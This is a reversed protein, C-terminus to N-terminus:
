DEKEPNLKIKVWFKELSVVEAETKEQLIQGPVDYSAIKRLLTGGKTVTVSIGPFLDGGSESTLASRPVYGIRETRKHSIEKKYNILGWVEVQSGDAALLHTILWTLLFAIIPILLVLLGKRLLFDWFTQGILKNGATSKV